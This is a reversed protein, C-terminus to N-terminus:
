RSGRRWKGLVAALAGGALMVMTGPEPNPTVPVSGNLVDNGCLAVAWQIGLSGSSTMALFDATPVFGITVQYLGDTSGNGFPSVTVGSGGKELSSGAPMWVPQNRRYYFGSNHLMDDATQLPTPDSAYGIRYLDGPKLGNHEVLPVGFQFVPFSSKHGALDMYTTTNPDNPNYFFVDGASLLLGHDNFNSLTSNGFNFFLDLSVWNSNVSLEARQIDYDAPNGIVDCGGDYSPSMSFSCNSPGGFPDTVTGAIGALGTALLLGAILVVRM